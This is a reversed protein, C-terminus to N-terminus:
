IDEFFNFEKKKSKKAQPIKIQMGKGIEAYKAMRRFGEAKSVLDEERMLSNLAQEFSKPAYMVRGRNTSM